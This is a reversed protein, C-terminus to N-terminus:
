KVKQFFKKFQKPTFIKNDFLTIPKYVIYILPDHQEQYEYIGFRRYIGSEGIFIAKELNAPIEKIFNSNLM